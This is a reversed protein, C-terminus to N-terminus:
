MTMGGDQRAELTDLKYIREHPPWLKHLRQANSPVEATINLTETPPLAVPFPFLRVLHEEIVKHLRM